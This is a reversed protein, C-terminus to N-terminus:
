KKYLTSFRHLLNSTSVPLKKFGDHVTLQLSHATCGSQLPNTMSISEDAIDFDTRDIEFANQLSNRLIEDDELRDELDRGDDSSTLFEYLDPDEEDIDKDEEDDGVANTDPAMGKKFAAKM